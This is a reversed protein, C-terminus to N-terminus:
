FGIGQYMQLVESDRPFPKSRGSSSLMGAVDAFSALSRPAIPWGDKQALFLCAAGIHRFKYSSFSERMFFRQCLAQAKAVTRDELRLRKALAAIWKNAALRCSREAAIPIGCRQSPTAIPHNPFLWDNAEGNM